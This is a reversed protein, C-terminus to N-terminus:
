LQLMIKLLAARRAVTDRREQEKMKSAFDRAMIETDDNAPFSVASVDFVKSVKLITRTRTDRDYSEKEVRFAWSMKTVMKEKIDEYLGRALETRGLDAAILFGDANTELLLSGNTTRAFIRGDHNYQMVVDSMDAGDLARRDIQEYYKVGDIEYLLYPKSFTTAYGEVYYDTQIRKEGTNGATFPVAVSRYEKEIGTM